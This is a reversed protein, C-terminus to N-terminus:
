CKQVVLILAADSSELSQEQDVGWSTAPCSCLIAELKVKVEVDGRDYGTIWIVM